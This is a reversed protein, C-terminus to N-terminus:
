KRNKMYRNLKKDHLLEQYLSELGPISSLFQYGGILLRYVTDPVIRGMPTISSEKDYFPMSIEGISLSSWYITPENDNTPACWEPPSISNKASCVWPRVDYITCKQNKLFPCPIQLEHYSQLAASLNQTSEESLDSEINLRKAEEIRNILDNHNQISEFWFSFSNLFNSMVERNSYLYFVILECEGLSASILEDCCFVCGKHCSISQGDESVKTQLKRKLERFVKRKHKRLQVCFKRRRSGVEGLYAIEQCFKVSEKIENM